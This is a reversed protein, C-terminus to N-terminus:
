GTEGKRQKTLWAFRYDANARRCAACPVQKDLLHRKYGSYTGCEPAPKRRRAARKELVHQSVPQPAPEVAGVARLKRIKRRERESLGGWVGHKEVNVLAEELCFTRVPCRACIAKAHRADEGREPFFLDPDVGKCAAHDAWREATYDDDPVAHLTV